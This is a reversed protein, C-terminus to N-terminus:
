SLILQITLDSDDGIVYSKFVVSDTITLTVDKTLYKKGAPITHVTGGVFAWNSLGAEFDVKTQYYVGFQLDAVHTALLLINIKSVVGTWPFEFEVDSGTFALIRPIPKNVVAGKYALEGGIDSLGLLPEPINELESFSVPEDVESGKYALKGNVETLNGLIPPIDKLDNFSQPENVVSGKYALKGGIESLNLLEQPVDELDTFSQPEDVMVKIKDIAIQVNPANIQSKTDDFLVDKAALKNVGIRKLTWVISGDTVTDGPAAPCSPESSGSKGATTCELYGWSPMSHLRVVDILSYPSDAEWGAWHVGSEAHSNPLANDDISELADNIGSRNVIATGELLPIILRDTNAM